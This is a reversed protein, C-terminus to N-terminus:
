PAKAIAAPRLDNIKLDLVAAVSSGTQEPPQLKRAAEYERLAGARDGKALLIDGRVETYAAQYKGVDAASL